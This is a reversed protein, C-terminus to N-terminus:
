GVGWGVRWVVGFFHGGWVGGQRVVDRVLFRLGEPGADPVVVQRVLRDLWQAEFGPRGERRQVLHDFRAAGVDRAGAGGEGRGGDFDERRQCGAVHEAHAFVVGLVGPLEVARTEVARIYDVLRRVRDDEGLPERRNHRIALLNKHIKLERARGVILALNTDNNPLRCIPNTLLLRPPNHPPERNNIIQRRALPLPIMLLKINPLRRVRKTGHYTNIDKELTQLRVAQLAGNRNRSRLQILHQPNLRM